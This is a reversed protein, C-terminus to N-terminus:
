KLINNSKEDRLDDELKDHVTTDIEKILVDKVAREIIIGIKTSVFLLFQIYGRKWLQSVAIVNMALM